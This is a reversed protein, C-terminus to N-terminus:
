KDMTPINFVLKIASKIGNMHVAKWTSVITDTYFIPVSTTEGM